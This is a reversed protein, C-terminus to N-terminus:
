PRGDRAVRRAACLLLAIARRPNAMERETWVVLGIGRARLAARIARHRAMTGTRRALRRPKVEVYVVGSATLAGFDATYRHPEGGDDWPEPAPQELYDDVQRAEELLIAATRELLSEYAVMRGTKMSPRFGTFTDRRGTVLRRRLRRYRPGAVTVEARDARFARRWTAIPDNPARVRPWEGHSVDALEAPGARRAPREGHRSESTLHGPAADRFGDLLEAHTVAVVTGSGRERFLFGGAISSVFEHTDNPYPLNRM